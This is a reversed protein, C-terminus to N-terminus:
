FCDEGKLDRKNVLYQTSHIHLTINEPIHRLTAQYFTALTESSRVAEM